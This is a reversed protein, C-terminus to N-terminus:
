SLGLGREMGDLDHDVHRRSVVARTVALVPRLLARAVPPGQGLLGEVHAFRTRDGDPEAAMGIAYVGRRAVMLCWGDELEVEFRMRYGVQSSTISLHTGEAHDVRISRVARDFVPVSRQLDGVWGWVDEFPRDFTRERLVGGPMGAAVARLRGIRDLRAEPWAGTM